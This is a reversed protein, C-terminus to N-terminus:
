FFAAEFPNKMACNTFYTIVTKCIKSINTAIIKSISYNLFTIIKEKLKLSWINLFFIEGGIIM